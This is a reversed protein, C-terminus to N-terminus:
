ILAGIETCKELEVKIIETWTGPLGRGIARNDVQVLPMVGMLSNTLFCEDTAILEQPQLSREEVQLGVAKGLKLAIQRIIGPLLGQNVDPTVLRGDRVLFLNTASGEALCGATNLFLAEDLGQRLAKERSLLNELYNLTKLRVLPSSENRRTAAFCAKFGRAYDDHGYPLPATTILLNCAGGPPGASLTLRLVGNGVQNLDITNRTFTDIDNMSFPMTLHIVACGEALRRYHLPWFVPQGSRILITEFLGYGFLLGRDSISVHAKDSPLFRGNLSVIKPL